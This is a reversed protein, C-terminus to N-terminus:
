VLAKLLAEEIADWDLSGLHIMELRNGRLGEDKEVQIDGNVGNIAVRGLNTNLGAKIRLANSEELVRLLAYHDFRLAEAFIWGCSEYKQDHNEVRRFREGEALQMSESEDNGQLPMSLKILSKAFHTHHPHYLWDPDVQGQEVWANGAIEREQVLHEFAAKDEESCQDTKNAVLVDAAALQEQYYENGTYREDSLHRPDVLCVCARMDLVSDFPPQSLQKIIQRPHGIGTPEILLRDPRARAILANIGVQMSVGAACCMCGGPVEKIAVGAQQLLQGDIGVKGFENVLVAWTEGEPKQMLLNLIATTKGVGLFGTIVNTPINKLITPM